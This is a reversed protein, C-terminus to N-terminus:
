GGRVFVIEVDGGLKGANPKGSQVVKATEQALRNFDQENVKIYRTVNPNAGLKQVPIGLSSCLAVIDIAM